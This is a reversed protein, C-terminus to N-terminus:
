GCRSPTCNDEPDEKNSVDFYGTFESLDGEEKGYVEIGEYSVQLAKSLAIKASKLKKQYFEGDPLTDVVNSVEIMGLMSAELKRMLEIHLERMEERTM